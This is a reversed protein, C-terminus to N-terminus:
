TNTSYSIILYYYDNILFPAISVKFKLVLNKIDLIKSYNYIKIRIVTPLKPYTQFWNWHSCSELKKTNLILPVIQSWFGQIKFCM